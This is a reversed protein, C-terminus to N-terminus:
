FVEQGWAVWLLKSYCKGSGLSARCLGVAHLYDFIAASAELVQSCTEKLLLGVTRGGQSCFIANYWHQM